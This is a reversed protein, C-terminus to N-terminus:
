ADSQTQARKAKKMARKEAKIRALQKEKNRQQREGFQADHLAMTAIRKATAVMNLKELINDEDELGELQTLKTNIKEEITHIVDIDRETIFSVAFGKKGNRATRGVRHVYDQWAIPLDWNIVLEVDPIDLGRSGVDTAVLVPVRQARFSELNESRESQKLHSHLSVNPINLESLMRSLTAATKCRATFIITAPLFLNSDEDDSQEDLAHHARPRKGKKRENEAKREREAERKAKLRRDRESSPKIPPHRMIHYLYPERAHSPVFVYRQELTEPTKTHMEIKCVMPAPKGEPRKKEAFGVVQETLTATFLLTQLTKTSPLVSYLYDLEPKFTDTLLRDAEDLVLFRCRRLAWEEGGGSRLHDVLRGPTAVIVHPRMNALESAQKMMDMGGLVLACRLGMRAGEGLAVFQEHLQVGLERTPTLVVAFGGVMDKLLRNLIPLAFCLTKGSGTQAGGVLDRGELVSPITLSQIPTPVKIQLSALSRILMPSIGISSFSAHIPPESASKAIESISGKSTSAVESAAAAAASTSVVPPM